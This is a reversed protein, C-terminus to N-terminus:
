FDLTRFDNPRGSIFIHSNKEKFGKFKHWGVDGLCVGISSSPTQAQLCQQITPQRAGCAQGVTLTPLFCHTKCTGDGLGKKKSYPRFEFTCSSSVLCKGAIQKELQLEITYSFAKSGM